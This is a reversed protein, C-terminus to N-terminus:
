AVCAGIKCFQFSYLAGLWNIGFAVLQRASSHKSFFTLFKVKAFVSFLAPIASSHTRGPDGVGLHFWGRRVVENWDAPRCSFELEPRAPNSASTTEDGPTHPRHLKRLNRHGSRAHQHHLLVPLPRSQKQNQSEKEPALPLHALIFIMTATLRTM